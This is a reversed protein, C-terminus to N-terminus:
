YRTGDRRSGYLIHHASQMTVSIIHGPQCLCGWSTLCTDPKLIIALTAAQFAPSTKNEAGPYQSGHTQSIVLIVGTMVSERERWVRELCTWSNVLYGSCVRALWTGRWIQGAVYFPDNIARLSWECTALEPNINNNAGDNDAGKNSELTTVALFFGASSVWLRCRM